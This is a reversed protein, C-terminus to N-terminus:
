IEKGSAIVSFRNLWFRWILFVIIYVVFVYTYKHNFEFTEQFFKYNLSLIIERIINVIFIVGIGTPIFVSKYFAKGPFCLLFGSYLAFLELGNCADAVLVVPQDDITVINGRSLTDYGLLNLGIVTGQIVLNTLWENIRSYPQILGYYTILWIPYAIGCRILFVKILKKRDSYKNEKM